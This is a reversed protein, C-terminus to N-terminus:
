FQILSPRSDQNQRCLERCPSIDPLVFAASSGETSSSKIQFDNAHLREQKQIRITDIKALPPLQHQLDFLFQQQQSQEGEVAISVGQCANAVWGNQQYRKALHYVFPRFGLGQM